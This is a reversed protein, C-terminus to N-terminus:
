YITCCGENGKPKEVGLKETLIPDMEVRNGVSVFISNYINFFYKYEKIVESRNIYVNKKSIVVQYEETLKNLINQEESDIGKMDGNKDDYEGSDM